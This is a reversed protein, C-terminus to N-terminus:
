ILTAMADWQIVMRSRVDAHVFIVRVWWGFVRPAGTPGSSSWRSKGTPPDGWLQIIVLPIGALIRFHCPHHSPTGRFFSLCVGGFFSSSATTDRSRMSPFDPPFRRFEIRSTTGYKVPQHNYVWGESFYSLWKPHNNGLYPFIFFTWVVFWNYINNDRFSRHDMSISSTVMPNPNNRWGDDM